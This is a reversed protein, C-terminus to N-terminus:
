QVFETQDLPYFRVQVLKAGNNEYDWGYVVLDAIDLIWAENLEQYIGLVKLSEVWLGFDLADVVLDGNLDHNDGGVGDFDIDDILVYDDIDLDGDLDADLATDFAIGTYTFMDTVDVAKSKGSSRELTQNDTTFAGNATVGGVGILSSDTCETLGGFSALWIDVDLQDVVTDGTLDHESPVTGAPDIFGNGDVDVLLLDNVDIVGNGDVDYVTTDNCAEVLAPFFTVERPEDDKKPKALIRAYFRTNVLRYSHWQPTTM